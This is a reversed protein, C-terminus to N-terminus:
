SRQHKVHFMLPFQIAVSNVDADLVPILLSEPPGLFDGEVEQLGRVRNSDSLKKQHALLIRGPLYFSM